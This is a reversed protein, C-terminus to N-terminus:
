PRQKKLHDEHTTKKLLSRDLEALQSYNRDPYTEMIRYPGFRRFELKGGSGKDLQVNKVLVKVLVLDGIPLQEGAPRKGLGKYLTTGSKM